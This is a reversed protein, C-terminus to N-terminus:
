GPTSYKSKNHNKNERVRRIVAFLSARLDRKIPSRHDSFSCASFYKVEVGGASSVEKL